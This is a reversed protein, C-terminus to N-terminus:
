APVPLNALVQFRATDSYWPGMQELVQVEWEGAEDLDAPTTDYYAVGTTGASDITAPFDVSTGTPRRARFTVPATIPLPTSGDSTVTVQMRYLGGVHAHGRTM